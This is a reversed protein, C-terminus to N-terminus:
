KSLPISKFLKEGILFLIYVDYRNNVPSYLIIIKLMSIRANDICSGFLFKTSFNGNIKLSIYYTINKLYTFREKQFLRILKFYNTVVEFQERIYKLAKCKVGFKNLHIKKKMKPPHYTFLVM